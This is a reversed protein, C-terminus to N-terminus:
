IYSYNLKKLITKVMYVDNGADHAIIPKNIIKQYIKELSLHLVDEKNYLMRIITKSDDTYTTNDFLKYNNKMILHDFSNGNHAIFKPMFCYDFIDKIENIFQLPSDGHLRLTDNTIGTIHNQELIQNCKVYGSSAIFDLNYEEFHRQIIKCSNTYLDTTELDYIFVNNRMKVELTNCLLKNLKYNDINNISINYMIGQYLNLIKIDMFTKWNPYKNNYYLLLQYIQQNSLNKTFKIDYITNGDMIDIAGIIPLNPHENYVQFEYNMCDIQNVYNKINYIADQVSQIHIDFNQKNLYGSEYNESKMFICLKWIDKINKYEDIENKEIKNIILKLKEYNDLKLKDRLKLYIKKQFQNRINNKIFYYLRLEDKSLNDKYKHIYDFTLGDDITLFRKKFKNFCYIYDDPIFITNEIMCKLKIVLSLELLSKGYKILYYYEFISEMFNGYCDGYLHFEYPEINGNDFIDIKEVNYQILQEFRYEQKPKLKRILETIGIACKTITNEQLKTYEPKTIGKNITYLSKDIHYLTNFPTKTEDIYIKLNYKARTMAVYWLYKFQNFQEYSPIRSMTTIHYNLVIVQDFELGKSGHITMLNIHGEKYKTKTDDFKLNGDSYHQIFPINNKIFLHRILSLGLSLYSQNNFKSLKVPSIIAINEYKYKTNQITLLIDNEIEQYKGLFIEPKNQTTDEKSSKMWFDPHQHPLIQNYFQILQPTSRYNIKLYVTKDANYNLLYKDSGDQFQYINQNPDGIYCLKANLIKSLLQLFDNQIQSIDQAEDIYIIKVDRFKDLCTDEYNKTKEIESIKHLSSLVTTNMSSCKKDKNIVGSISHITRVNQNNFANKKNRQNIFRIKGVISHGKDLFDQKAKRSFTCILYENSNQLNESKINQYIHEIICRTKGGGPIGLLKLNLLPSNIFDLQENNFM